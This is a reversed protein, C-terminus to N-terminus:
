EWGEDDTGEVMGRWVIFGSPAVEEACALCCEGGSADTAAAAAPAPGLPLCALRGALGAGTPTGAPATGGASGEATGLM